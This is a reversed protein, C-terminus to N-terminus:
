SAPTLTMLKDRYYQYQTQRATIEAALNVSLNSVLADFEDLIAVIREQEARPPVPITLKSLSGSSIRKVKARAVHKAKEAHFTNTQLYYSVFKADMGHRFAFCDDHVAVDGTGLWAVAKCIDEVTESVGTLIVDGTQAFRLTQELDARVHSYVEHAYVGYRTYIEGFNICPLGDDVIDRKTFRRGRTFVGVEGMPVWPVRKQARFSLLEERYFEYQRFRSKLESQLKSELTIKSSEMKDLLMAIERQVVLPPVPIEIRAIDSVKIDKVKTGTVFKRKQREFEETQFYYAVYLPDLSHQYACSHGGIALAGGGLWAVATCVDQINESTTTVVLDGPRAQKLRAALEPEIFSRTSTTSTGYVTYIQGYHICPFGKEVFDKKQLGTGRVFTGIDGLKKVPVGQPCHEAILDQIRSM